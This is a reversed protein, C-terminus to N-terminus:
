ARINLRTGVNGTPQVTPASAQILELAGQNLQETSNKLKKAVAIQYQTGADLVPASVNMGTQVPGRQLGSPRPLRASPLPAPAPACFASPEATIPPMVEAVTSAIKKTGSNKTATSLAASHCRM